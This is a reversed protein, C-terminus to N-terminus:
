RRPRHVRRGARHRDADGDVAGDRARLRARDDGRRHRRDREAQHEALLAPRRPLRRGLGRARRRQGTRHRRLGVGGSRRRPRRQRADPQPQHDRADAARRAVSKGQKSLPNVLSRVYQNAKLEDVTKQVATKNAGSTLKGGTSEIVIPVSGNAQSPLKAELLDTAATSDSGPITTDDSTPRGPRRERGALDRDRDPDLARLRDERPARLLRRPSLAPRDGTRAGALRRDPARDGRGRGGPPLALRRRDEGAARRQDRGRVARRGQVPHDPRLRGVPPAEAARRDRLAELVRKGAAAGPMEPSTPLMLPFARAGAKSEPTPFPAEYAALVEDDLGRAVAGGVLMGIPLDETREVFDRFTKWADSMPQEGTFLGTDMIVMRAIREPREVAARLGIPGGWDHVVVTADRLDLEDLLEVFLEAHRDYSYWGLETPKDSRGFGAHDPAICRYGADLVPPIVKRWLYSWTPEGHVFVVPEGDGEDVHALRLGDVERYCPSTTSARSTPSASTPPGSPTWAPSWGVRGQPGSEPESRTWPARGYCLTDCQTLQHCRPCRGVGREFRRRSRALAATSRITSAALSSTRSREYASRLM